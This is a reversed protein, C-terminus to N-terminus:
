SLKTRVAYWIPVSQYFVRMHRLKREDLGKGFERTLTKPLAPLLRKCYTTRTAVAQEFEVIENRRNRQFM